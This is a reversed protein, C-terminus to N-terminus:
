MMALTWWGERYEVRGKTLKGLDVLGPIEIEYNNSYDLDGGLSLGKFTPPLSRLLNGQLNLNNKIRLNGFSDPLERLELEPWCLNWIEGSRQREETWEIGDSLDQRLDEANMEPHLRVVDDILAAVERSGAERKAAAELQNSQEVLREVRTATRQYREEPSLNGTHHQAHLGAAWTTNAGEFAPAAKAAATMMKQKKFGTLRGYDDQHPQENLLLYELAAAEATIALTTEAEIRDLDAELVGEM